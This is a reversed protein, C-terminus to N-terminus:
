LPREQTGGSLLRIHLVSGAGHRLWGSGPLRVTIGAARGRTARARLAPGAPRGPPRPQQHDEPRQQHHGAAPEDEPVPRQDGLGGLADVPLVQQRGALVALVHGDVAGLVDQQDADVRAGSLVRVVQDPGIRDNDQVDRGRVVAPEHDGDGAVRVRLDRRVVVPLVLVVAAVVLDVRRERVAALPQGAGGGPLLRGHQQCLRDGVQGPDGEVGDRDDVEVAEPLHDVHESADVHANVLPGDRHV